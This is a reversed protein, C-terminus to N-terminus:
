DDSRRPQPPLPDLVRSASRDDDLIIHGVMESDGRRARIRGAIRAKYGEALRRHADRADPCTAAEALKREEEARALLYGRDEDSM